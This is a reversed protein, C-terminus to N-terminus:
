AIELKKYEKQRSKFSGYLCRVSEDFYDYVLAVDKNEMPRLVRGLYQIIRGSFRIPLTLFLASLNKCDFGEGILQSTAILIKIKGNNVDKVIQKRNEPFVDSTLIKSDIFKSSLLNQLEQCHNKRDSLVLCTEGDNVANIIDDIIMQNRKEDLSLEQLLKSYEASPDEMSAIFNTKRIISQIGTIYGEKILERPEIKHLIKGVYWEIAKTLGDRRYPTASLGMIYRGSFKKVVHTFTKSPCRHCNHVLVNNAFYNHNDEVEINYVYNESCMSGFTGNSRRKHIKINELGSWYTEKREKPRNITSIECQTSPWRNRNRNKIKQKRCRNQLLYSIWQWRNTYQRNQYGGGNAMGFCYSFSNPISHITWQWWTKWDLYKINQQSKKNIENKRHKKSQVNPQKKENSGLCIKQQITILIQWIKNERKKIGREYMSKFLLSDRRTSQITINELAEKRSMKNNKWLHLLKSNNNKEEHDDEKSNCSLSDICLMTDSSHLEYSTLYNRKTFFQHSETCILPNQGKIKITCLSRPKNKFTKIVRKKEIKNTKHNYSNVFDGPKIQEIPKDDIKTGAVFCEDVILFEYQNVIEPYNRLTQILAVTIHKNEDLCGDGIKGYNVINLFEKLRDMWQYLLEKTHVIIITPQKRKAIMYIGMVTKGSGTPACLTGENQNLMSKIAIEQFPRLHGSFEFNIKEKEVHTRNDIKFEINNHDLYEIMDPLFGRPVYLGNKDVEKYFYLEKPTKWNYRKMRHNELWVPNRITLEGYIFDDFREDIYPVDIQNTITLNIM